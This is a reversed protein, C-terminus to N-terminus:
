EVTIMEEAAAAGNSEEKKEDGTGTGTAGGAEEGAAKGDGDLLPQEQEQVGMKGERARERAGGDTAGAVEVGSVFLASVGELLVLFVCLLSAIFFHSITSGIELWSGEDKVVWFFYLTLVDSVAVVVMFLASPTIGLRRNLIGVNASVLAFPVMLKVVLLAGQTLPDFVPQLRNVSELSFSSVSAVNGTSFFASQILVFYFLAVRADKVMLPRFKSTPASTTSASGNTAEPRRLTSVHGAHELRVWAVLTISFVVYFIGEYSISLIVFTPAFTLFIVVLRHLYHNNPQIRYAVPMFLSSFLVFLGAVQNGLPLGQRAQLSLVSSRTVVMSLIVLGVQAGVLSRNIPRSVHSVAVTKSSSFDSLVWDEFVLYTVGIMVMFAGGLLILNLNELKMAPLLTFTSMALCSAFWTASLTAHERLFGLGYTAPWFSGIIYIATLIERHIYGLALSVIVGIYIATNIVFSLLSAGPKIHAFLVRRGEALTQRRAYVEEWFFVPFFAYAYYTPSSGSMIFSAYLVLLVSSFIVAGPVDRAPAVRGHLVHVDVVTALAFAMWGLYGITILARLFLWDYTQLYRLGELGVRILAASEEIAEEYRGDDLLKRIDAVRESAVRGGGHDEGRLPGYPRFRLEGARKIEEKVRYM